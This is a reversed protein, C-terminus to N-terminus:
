RHSLPSELRLSHGCSLKAPQTGQPSLRLGSRMYIEPPRIKRVRTRNGGDGSGALVRERNPANKM